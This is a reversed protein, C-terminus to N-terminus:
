LMRKNANKRIGTCRYVGIVTVKDGPKAFDVNRDYAIVTLSQPSEGAPVADPNEQV